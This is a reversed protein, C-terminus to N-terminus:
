HTEVLRQVRTPIMLEVATGIGPTSTMKVGYKDGYLIKLRRNVSKIGIHPHTNEAAPHMEPEGALIQALRAEEIGKGNDSINIKLANDKCYASVFILGGGKKDGIGYNIANEIIPQLILKPVMCDLTDKEIDYEIHIRGGTIVQQMSIYHDVYDIEDRFRVETSKDSLSIRLLFSLSSIVRVIDNQGNIKALGNVSELINYLFHPNIQALLANYEARQSEIKEAAVNEILDSIKDSMLDFHHFLDATEDRSRPQAKFTFDGHEACKIKKLLLRLNSTQSSSIFLAILVSLVILLFCAILVFQKIDRIGTLLDNVSIVYLVKWHANESVGSEIILDNGQYKFFNQGSINKVGDKNFWNVITRVKSNCILTKSTQDCVVISGSQLSKSFLSKIYTDSLGIAVIGNSVHTTLSINSKVAYIIGPEDPFTVYLCKGSADMIAKKNQLIYATIDSCSKTDSDDRNYYFHQGKLNIFLDSNIIVGSNQLYVNFVYLNKQMAVFDTFDSDGFINAADTAYLIDLEFSSIKYAINNSMQEVLNTSSSEIERITNTEYVKYVILNVCTILLIICLYSLFLKTRLKLNIFLGIAKNM